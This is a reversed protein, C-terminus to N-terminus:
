EIREFIYISNETEIEVEKEKVNIEMAPSTITGKEDKLFFFVASNGVQPERYFIVEKGYRDKQKFTDSRKDLISLIIFDKKLLSESM